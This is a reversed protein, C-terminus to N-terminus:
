AKGELQSSKARFTMVDGLPTVRLGTELGEHTSRALGRSSSFAYPSYRSEMKLLVIASDVIVCSIPKFKCTAYLVNAQM